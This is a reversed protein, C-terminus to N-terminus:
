GEDQPRTVAPADNLWRSLSAGAAAEARSRPDRAQQLTRAARSQFWQWRSEEPRASLGKRLRAGVTAAWGSRAAESAFLVQQRQEFDQLLLSESEALIAPPVTDQGIALGSPGMVKDVLALVLRAGPLWGGEGALAVFLAADVPRRGLMAAIDVLALPGCDFRHNYVAHLVLHGLMHENSPFMVATGGVEAMVADALLAATDICPLGPEAIRHHLEVYREVDPILVPDLHKDGDFARAIAADRDAPLEAGARALAEVAAPMDSPAVLLDLDRMPRLAAEPYDFFALRAGKLAVMPVRAEAFATALRVLAAQATLAGIAADRYSDRWAATIAPPVAIGELGGRTRHHLWPRLRHQVAMDDIAQWDAEDPSLAPMPLAPGTLALLVAKRESLTM